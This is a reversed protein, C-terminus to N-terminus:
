LGMPTHALYPFEYEAVIRNAAAVGAMAKDDGRAVAVYGYHALEKYRVWLQHVTRTNLDQYVGGIKLRDRRSRPGSDILLSRLVAARSSRSKSYADRVGELSRARPRRYEGVRGGFRRRAIVAVKM